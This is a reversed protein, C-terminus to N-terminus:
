RAPRHGSGGGRLAGLLGGSAHGSGMGGAGARQAERLLQVGAAGGDGAGGFPVCLVARGEQAEGGADAALQGVPHGAGLHTVVEGRQAVGHAGGAGGAGSVERLVGLGAGREGRVRGGRAAGPLM